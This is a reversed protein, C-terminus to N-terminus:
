YRNYNMCGEEYANEVLFEAKKFSYKSKGNLMDTLDKYASLFHNDKMMYPITDFKIEENIKYFITDKDTKANIRLPTLFLVYFIIIYVSYILCGKKQLCEPKLYVDSEPNIRPTHVLETKRIVKSLVFRAKYFNDLQLM